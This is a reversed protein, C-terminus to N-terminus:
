WITPVYEFEFEDVRKSPLGLDVFMDKFVGLYEEEPIQEGM